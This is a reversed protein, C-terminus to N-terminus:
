VLSTTFNNIGLISTLDTAEIISDTTASFGATADNIPVFIRSGFTFQAM